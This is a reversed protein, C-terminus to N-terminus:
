GAEWTTPPASAVADQINAGQNKKKKLWQSALSGPDVCSILWDYFSLDCGVGCVQPEGLLPFVYIRQFSCFQSTQQPWWPPSSVGKPPRHPWGLRVVFSLLVRTVRVQRGIRGGSPPAPVAVLGAM